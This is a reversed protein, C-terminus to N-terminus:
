PHLVDVYIRNPSDLVGVRFNVEESLGLVWNVVGEFDGIQEAELLSPMGPTLEVFDVSQPGGDEHASASELRIKLFANGAIEVPQDSPDQTIPPQVYEVLYGPVDGEFEFTIRDYGEHEGTRVHLLLPMPPAVAGAQEAPGRTGEFAPTLSPTTGPATPTTAVGTATPVNATPTADTTDNDDDCGAIVFAALLALTSLTLALKL